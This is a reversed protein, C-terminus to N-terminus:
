AQPGRRALCSWSNGNRHHLSEETLGADRLWRRVDERSLYFAIPPVLKDYVTGWFTGFGLRSFYLFYAAYPLRGAFRGRSLPVYLLRIIAWLPAALLTAAVRNAWSPLRSFVRARWPDLWRVFAENGELAYVWVFLRGGPRVLPVIQHFAKGPDPTHHIVGISYAFDFAAPRLPLQDISAQVVHAGPRDRLNRWAVDVADSLDVAVVARAGAETAAVALKGSGCGADLVHLGALAAAPLPHLYSEFETRLIPSLGSLIHWQTGFARSTAREAGSLAAPLMRPVGGRIPFEAHCALCRLIGEVVEPGEVRRPECALTGGCRLCALYDLLGPKV